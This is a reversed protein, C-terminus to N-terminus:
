NWGQSKSYRVYSTFFSQACSRADFKHFFFLNIEFKVSCIHKLTYLFFSFSFLSALFFLHRSHIAGSDLSHECNPDSPNPRSLAASNLTLFRSPPEREKKRAREREWTTSLLRLLSITAAPQRSASYVLYPLLPAFPRVLNPTLSFSFSVLTHIALMALLLPHLFKPPPPPRLSSFLSLSPFSLSFPPRGQAVPLAGHALNLASRRRSNGDLRWRRGGKVGEGNVVIEVEGQSGRVRAM